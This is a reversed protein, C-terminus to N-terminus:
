HPHPYALKGKPKSIERGLEETTEIWEAIASKANRIAEEYTSGDAMCGPLKPIAALKKFARMWRYTDHQNYFSAKPLSARGFDM